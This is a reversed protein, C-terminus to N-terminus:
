CMQIKGRGPHVARRRMQDSRSWTAMRKRMWSRASQTVNDCVNCSFIINLRANDANVNNDARDLTVCGEVATTDVEDEDEEEENNGGRVELLQEETKSIPNNIKAIM